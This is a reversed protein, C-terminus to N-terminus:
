PKGARLDIDAFVPLHDSARVKLVWARHKFPAEARVYIADLKQATWHTRRISKTLEVLGASRAAARIRHWMQLRPVGFTNLDGAVVTLPVAPQAAMDRIVAKFQELKHTFGIVDLHVVYVRLDPSEARIAIRRQPPIARLLTREARSVPVSATGSLTVVKPTVPAFDTARWILANGQDRGRLMQATAQFYRYDPGMAQAITEADQRGDHVSAEQIAFMDLATFDAHTTVADLVADLRLGLQINWTCIRM